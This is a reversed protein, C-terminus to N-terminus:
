RHIIKKFNIVNQGKEIETAASDTMNGKHQQINYKYRYHEGLAAPTSDVTFTEWTYSFELPESNQNLPLTEKGIPISRSNAPLKGQYSANTIVANNITSSFGGHGFADIMKELEYQDINRILFDDWWTAQCTKYNGSHNFSGQRRAKYVAEDANPANYNRGMFYGSFSGNNSFGIGIGHETNYGVAISMSMPNQTDWGVGAYFTSSGNNSYGVQFNVNKWAWNIPNLEKNNAKYGDHYLKGVLIAAAITLAVWDGSPDTYKLPNNWCYAYRNYSQTFDSAQVYNDPSLMRGLLPAKNGQEGAAARIRERPM